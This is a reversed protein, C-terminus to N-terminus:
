IYMGDTFGKDKKESAISNDDDDNDDDDSVDGEDLDEDSSEEM